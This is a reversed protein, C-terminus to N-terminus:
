PSNNRSFYKLLITSSSKLWIYASDNWINQAIINTNNFYKNLLCYLSLDIWLFILWKFKEDITIILKYICSFQALLVLSKINCKKKLIIFFSMYWYLILKHVPTKPKPSYRVPFYSRCTKSIVTKAKGWLLEDKCSPSSFYIRNTYSYRVIFTIIM